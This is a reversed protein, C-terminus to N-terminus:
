GLEIGDPDQGDIEDAFSRLIAAAKRGGVPGKSSSISFGHGKKGGLVLLIVCAAGTSELLAEGEDTYRGPTGSVQVREAM